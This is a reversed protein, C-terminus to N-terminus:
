DVSNANKNNYAQALSLVLWGVLWHVVDFKFFIM